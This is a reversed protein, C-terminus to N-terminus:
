HFINVDVYLKDALALADPMELGHRAAVCLGALLLHINASGDPCRFELTQKEGGTPAGGKEQPNAHSIMDGVDGLWGLPVRVLTSRNKDGWCVNTPAEQHPVLRLYSTPVTNGFATLSGALDLYGAITKKAVDSLTAGDVLANKGGDMLKSHIHMGSGAHGGLIKPAFTVTMGHRHGAMRLLWKAVVIQDAADEVPVATFELEHQEMARGDVRIAGVESHGYKIIGGAQTVAQMAECRFCACKAFPAAGQYGSQAPVPYSDDPEYFVYYELEGMAEMSMGTSKRLAEHATRLVNEPSSPLPAGDGTYYSCLIDVAPVGCFPNVYATGFRPVVYLDSSGPDLHSFLSSGDVREGTSLLREVQEKSSIPFSLAKLKGDGGVYRFNVMRVNKDEMFKILHAKTFQGPAIGLHQVIRNPNMAVRPDSM